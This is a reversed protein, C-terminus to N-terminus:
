NNITLMGNSSSLPTGQDCGSITDCKSLQGCVVRVGPFPFATVKMMVIVVGCNFKNM